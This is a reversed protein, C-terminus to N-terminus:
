LWFEQTGPSLLVSPKTAANRGSLSCPSPLCCQKKWFSKFLGSILITQQLLHLHCRKMPSQFVQWPTFQMKISLHSLLGACRAKRIVAAWSSSDRLSVCRFPSLSLTKFPLAIICLSGGKLFFIYEPVFFNNLWYGLNDEHFIKRYVARWSLLAIKTPRPPKDGSHSCTFCCGAEGKPVPFTCGLLPVEM